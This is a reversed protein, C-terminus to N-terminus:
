EEKLVKQIYGPVEEPRIDLAAALEGNLMDEARKMYRQDTQGLKKGSQEKLYIGKALRVYDECDHSRFLVDYQQRLMTISRSACVEEPIQPIRAIFREAEQRTMVPRMFVTTDVPTYIVETSGMPQMKYYLKDREGKGAFPPVCVELVVCVGSSGYVIKDGPQYM